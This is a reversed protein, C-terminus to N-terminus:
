LDRGLTRPRPTSTLGSADACLIWTDSAGGMGLTNVRNRPMKATEFVSVAYRISREKTRHCPVLPFVEVGCFPSSEGSCLKGSLWQM